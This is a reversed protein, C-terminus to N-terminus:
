TDSKSFAKLLDQLRYTVFGISIAIVMNLLPNGSYTFAAIVAAFSSIITTVLVYGWKSREKLSAGLQKKIMEQKIEKYPKKGIDPKIIEKLARNNSGPLPAKTLLNDKHLLEDVTEFWKVAEANPDLMLQNRYRIVDLKKQLYAEFIVSDWIGKPITNRFINISRIHGNIHSIISSDDDIMAEYQKKKEWRIYWIGVGISIGVGIWSFFVYSWPYDKFAIEISITIPDFNDGIVQLQGMYITENWGVERLFEDKLGYSVTISEGPLIQTENAYVELKDFGVYSPALSFTSAGTSILSSPVLRIGTATENGFNTLSFTIYTAQNQQPFIGVYRTFGIKSDSSAVRASGTAPRLDNLLISSMAFLLIAFILLHRYAMAPMLNLCYPYSHGNYLSDETTPVVTNRVKSM